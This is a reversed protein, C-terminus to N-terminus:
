EDFTGLQKIQETVRETQRWPLFHGADHLEIVSVHAFQTLWHQSVYQTNKPSVLKDKMGQIVVLKSAVTTQSIEETMIRLQDGLAMIEQNSKRLNKPVLWKLLRNNAIHNYWRPGGLEPDVSGALLLLATVKDPQQLAIKPALSAGLSHGVIVWRKEPYHAMVASIAATQSAFDFKKSQDTMASLGWNPRDVSVMFFDKQLVPNRLYDEFASWDGPTGHIFLVGNRSQNGSFGYHLSVEGTDITHFNLESAQALTQAIVPNNASYYLCITLPLSLCLKRWLNRCSPLSPRTSMPAM